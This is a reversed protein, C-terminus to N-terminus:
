SVGSDRSPDDGGGAGTLTAREVGSLVPTTRGAIVRVL